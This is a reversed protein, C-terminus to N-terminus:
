NKEDWPGGTPKHISFEISHSTWIRPVGQEFDCVIKTERILKKEEIKTYCMIPLCVSMFFKVISLRSKWITSISSWEM